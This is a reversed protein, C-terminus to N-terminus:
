IYQTHLTFPKGRGCCYGNKSISTPDASLEQWGNFFDDINSSLNSNDEELLAEIREIYKQLTKQEELDSNKGAIAGELYKDYYRIVSEV